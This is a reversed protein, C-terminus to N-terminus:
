LANALSLARDFSRDPVPKIETKLFKAKSRGKKHVEIWGKKETRQRENQKRESAKEM